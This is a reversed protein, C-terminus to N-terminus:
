KRIPYISHRTHSLNLIMNLGVKLEEGKSTDWDLLEQNFSEAFMFMFSMSEVNSTDFSVPSNFATAQFFMREMSTVKTHSPFLNFSKHSLPGYSM